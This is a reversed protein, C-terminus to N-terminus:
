ILWFDHSTLTPKNILTAIQIGDGAGNGNPDWFLAGTTKNYVLYDNADLAKTGVRFYAPSLEANSVGLNMYRAQLRITDDVPNFDKYTDRGSAPPTNDYCFTDKGAGGTITDNGAGGNLVDDGSEGFLVDNGPLATLTDNGAMGHLTNASYNGRVVNDFGNGIGLAATGTLELWEIAGKAHVADSLSFNASAFVSDYGDGGTEDVIDGVSDVTYGDSGAGGRMLDSGLGGILGDNGAGASLVNAGRNGTLTQSGNGSTLSIGVIGLATLASVDGALVSLSVNTAVNLKHVTTDERFDIKINTTGVNVGLQVAGYTITVAGQNPTFALTYGGGEGTQDSVGGTGGVVRSLGEGFDYQGNATVPPEGNIDSYHVDNFAVGTVFVKNGSQAFDATLMHANYNIGNFQFPGQEIGVGLEEFAPNLLNARQGPSLFMFRFMDGGGGTWSVNEGWVPTPDFTYGAANMRMLPTLGTRGTPFNAPEQSSYQDNAIMWTSHNDAALQLFDNSALVQKSATSITGAALGQNLSVGQRAAEGAPDMRARNILEIIHQEFQSANSM